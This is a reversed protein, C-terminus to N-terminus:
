IVARGRWEFKMESENLAGWADNWAFELDIKANKHDFWELCSWAVISNQQHISSKKWIWKDLVQYPTSIQLTFCDTIEMSVGKDGLFTERVCPVIFYKGCSCTRFKNKRCIHEQGTHLHLKWCLVSILAYIEDLIQRTWCMENGMTCAMIWCHKWRPPKKM